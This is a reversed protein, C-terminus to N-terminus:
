KLAIYGGQGGRLTRTKGWGERKIHHRESQETLVKDCHRDLRLPDILLVSSLVVSIKSKAGLPLGGPGKGVPLSSPFFTSDDSRVGPSYSTCPYLNHRPIFSLEKAQLNRPIRAKITWCTQLNRPIRAKITWCTQLISLPRTNAALGFSKPTHNFFYSTLFM